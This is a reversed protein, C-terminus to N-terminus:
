DNPGTKESQAQGNQDATNHPLPLFEVGAFGAQKRRKQYQGDDCHQQRGHEVVGAPEFAVRM